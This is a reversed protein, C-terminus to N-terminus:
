VERIAWRGEQVRERSAPSRGGYLFNFGPKRLFEYVLGTSLEATRKTRTRALGEGLCRAVGQKAAEGRQSTERMKFGRRDGQRQQGDRGKEMRSPSNDLVM